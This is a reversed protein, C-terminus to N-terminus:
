RLFKLNLDEHSHFVGLVALQSVLKQLRNFILDLSETSTASFNEYLQKLLTKQTKKTAENGGFRTEITAFLTKADKYQNFTMLHENSLAMLLMSRAKVDNKKKANEEITVPGPIITTSTGADDTITAAVLKFSNGNEIVDWLAYDQIQFYQEIRLKTLVPLVLKVGATSVCKDMEQIVKLLVRRLMDPVSSLGLRLIEAGVVRMSLSKGAVSAGADGSTGYDERLKKPPYGSGGAGDTVKRKKKIKNPQDAVLAGENVDDNGVGQVNANGRDYVGALLVVRDKTLELLPVEGDQAEREGIKVKTPDVHRIFAFLDM